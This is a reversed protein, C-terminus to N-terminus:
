FDIHVYSLKKFIIDRPWQSYNGALRANELSFAGYDRSYFFNLFRVVPAPRQKCAKCLYWETFVLPVDVRDFFEGASSNTFIHPEHGEADVKILATSSRMFPLLDNLLITNISSIISCSYGFLSVTCNTTNVVFSHGQNQETILTRGYTWKRFLM